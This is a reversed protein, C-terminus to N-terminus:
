YKSLVKECAAEIEEVSAEPLPKNVELIVMDYYNNYTLSDDTFLNIGQNFDSFSELFQYNAACNCYKKYEELLEEKSTELGDNNYRNYYAVDITLAKENVELNAVGIHDPYYEFAGTVYLRNTYIRHKFHYEEADMTKKEDSEAAEMVSNDISQEKEIYLIDVLLTIIIAMLLLRFYIIIQKVKM